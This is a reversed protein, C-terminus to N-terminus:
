WIEFGGCHELFDAFEKIDDVELYYSAEDPSLSGDGSCCNCWGKRGARRNPKGDDRTADSAIMKEPQGMEVGLDDNRIGTGSCLWCRQRPLAALMEDREKVYEAVEGKALQGRLLEALHKAHKAPLGDGDNTHWYVCRQTLEEPASDLIYNALPRWGWVNRRFYEGIAATPEQGYVDMGM